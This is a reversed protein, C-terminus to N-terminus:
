IAVDRQEGDITAQCTFTSGTQVEQDTPCIVSQANQGYEDSLIRQVGDQVADQDFVTTTFLGPTVFGLILIVAVVIGGVGSLVWPLASKQAPGRDDLQGPRPYPQEPYPQQPYGPGYGPPPYGPPSHGQQGYGQQGYGQQPYGRGYGPPPPGQQHGWNPDQVPVGGSPTDPHGQGPPQQRRQAPEESGPPGYPM